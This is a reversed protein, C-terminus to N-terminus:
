LLAYPFKGKLNKYAALIFGFSKQLVNDIESALSTVQDGEEMKHNEGDAELEQSKQGSSTLLKRLARYQSGM